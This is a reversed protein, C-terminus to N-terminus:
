SLEGVYYWKISNDVEEPNVIVASDHKNYNLYDNSTLKLYRKFRGTPKYYEIFTAGNKTNYKSLLDFLVIFYDTTLPKYNKM